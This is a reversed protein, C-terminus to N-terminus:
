LSGGVFVTGAIKIQADLVTNTMIKKSTPTISKNSRLIIAAELNMLPLSSKEIQLKIHPLVFIYDYHKLCENQYIHLEKEQENLSSPLFDLSSINTYDVSLDANGPNFDLVLIKHGYFKKLENTLYIVSEKLPEKPYDTTFFYTRDTNKRLVFDLNRIVESALFDSEQALNMNERQQMMSDRRM